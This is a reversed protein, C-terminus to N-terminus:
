TSPAPQGWRVRLYRVLKGQSDFEPIWNQPDHVGPKPTRGWPKGHGDLLEGKVVEGLDMNDM